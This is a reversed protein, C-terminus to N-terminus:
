KWVLKKCIKFDDGGYLRDSAARVQVYILFCMSKRFETRFSRSSMGSSRLVICRRVEKGNKLFFEVNKIM